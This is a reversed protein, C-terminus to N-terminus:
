HGVFLLPRSRDVHIEGKLRQGFNAWVFGESRSFVVTTSMLGPLGLSRGYKKFHPNPYGATTQASV